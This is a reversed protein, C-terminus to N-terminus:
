DPARLASSSRLTSFQQWAAYSPANTQHDSPSTM